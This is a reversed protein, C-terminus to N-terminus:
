DLEADMSAKASAPALGRSATDLHLLNSAEPFQSRISNPIM